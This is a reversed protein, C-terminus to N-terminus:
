RAQQFTVCNRGFCLQYTGPAAGDIVQLPMPRHMQQDRVVAAQLLDHGGIDMVLFRNAVFGIGYAGPAIPRGGIKMPVETLLYGQYKQQVSTSYGSTDVLVALSYQGDSSRVGASNRLQTSASQGRFFVADPLLKSAEPARLIGPKAPTQASALLPLCILASLILTAPVSYGLLITRLAKM